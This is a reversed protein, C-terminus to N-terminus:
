SVMFASTLTPTHTSPAIADPMVSPITDHCGYM